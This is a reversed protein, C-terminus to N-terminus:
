MRKQKVRSGLRLVDHPDYKGASGNQTGSDCTISTLRKWGCPSQRGALLGLAGIGLSEGVKLVDMGWDAPEHYSDFGDQGVDKCAGYRHDKKGFIDTANRWDLYFRYGVLDSEWGPGEYRIFWSHDTHEPPVRLITSM